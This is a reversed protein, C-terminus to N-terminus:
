KGGRRDTYSINIATTDTEGSVNRTFEIIMKKTPDLKRIWTSDTALDPGEPFSEDEPSPSFTQTHDKNRLIVFNVWEKSNLDVEYTYVGPSDGPTMLLPEPAWTGSVYYKGAPANKEDRDDETTVKDWTVTKWKGAMKLTVHYMDGPLGTDRSGVETWELGEKYGAVELTWENGSAAEGEIASQYGPVISERGDITWYCDDCEEKQVPGYVTSNAGMGTDEPHLVEEGDKDTTIMFSEWRNEGLTVTFGYTGEGEPRMKECTAWESWSGLIFYGSAPAVIDSEGGGGPWFAFPVRNMAPKPGATAALNREAAESLKEVWTVLNVNTGGFGYAMSGMFSSRCRFAVAETPVITAADQTECHPNLIKLHINGPTCGMSQQAIQQFFSAIGASEQCFGLKTKNSVFALVEEDGGPLGRL